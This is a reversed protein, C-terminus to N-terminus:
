IVLSKTITYSKMGECREGKCYDLIRKREFILPNGIFKPEHFIKGNSGIYTYPFFVIIQPNISQLLILKDWKQPDGCKDKIDKGCGCQCYYVSRNGSGDKFPIHAIIDVGYEKTGTISQLAPLPTANLRKAVEQIKQIANGRITTNAGLPIIKTARRPLYRKLVWASIKEFDTTFDSEYNKFISLKSSILLQLYFIQDCSLKEVLKFADQSGPCIEFPYKRRFVHMRRKIEDFCENVYSEHADNTKSSSEESESVETNYFYKIIDSKSVESKKSLAYLEIYDAYYTVGDNQKTEPFKIVGIIANRISEIENNTMM